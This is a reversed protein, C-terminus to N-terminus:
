NRSMEGRVRTFRQHSDTRQRFIEALKHVVKLVNSRFSWVFQSVSDDEIQRILDEPDINSMHRPPPLMM